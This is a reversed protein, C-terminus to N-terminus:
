PSAPTPLPEPQLLRTDQARPAPSGRCTKDWARSGRGWAAGQRPGETETQLWLAPPAMEGAMQVAQRPAKPAWGGTQEGLLLQGSIEIVTMCIVPAPPRASCM